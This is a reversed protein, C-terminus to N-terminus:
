MEEFKQNPRVKEQDINGSWRSSTLDSVWCEVSDFRCSLIRLVGCWNPDTMWYEVSDFEYKFPSIVFHLLAILCEMSELTLNEQIHQNCLSSLHDSMGHEWSDFERPHVSQSISSSLRVDWIRLLWIRKSTGIIFHEFLYCENLMCWLWITTSYASRM